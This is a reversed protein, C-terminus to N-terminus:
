RISRSAPVPPCWATTSSTSPARAPAHGLVSGDSDITWLGVGATPRVRTSFSRSVVPTTPELTSSWYLVHEGDLTLQADIAGPVLRWDGAETPRPGDYLVVGSRVDAVQHGPRRLRGREGDGIDWTRPGSGTRVFVVGQDIGDIVPRARRLRPRPRSWRGRHWTTPRSRPRATTCRRGPSRREPRRGQGDPPLRSGPRAEVLASSSARNTSCCRVALTTSVVGYPTAAADTDLWPLVEAPVRPRRHHLTADGYAPDGRLLRPCRALVFDM